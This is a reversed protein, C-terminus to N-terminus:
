PERVCLPKGWNSQMECAMGMDEWIIRETPESWPPCAPAAAPQHIIMGFHFACALLAFGLVTDLM